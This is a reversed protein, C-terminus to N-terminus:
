RAAREREAAHGQRGHSRHKWHADIRATHKAAACAQTRARRGSAARARALTVRQLATHADVGAFGVDRKGQRRCRTLQARALACALALAPGLAPALVLAVHRQLHLVHQPQQQVRQAVPVGHHAPLGGLADAADGRAQRLHAAGARLAHSPRATPRPSSSPASRVPPTQTHKCARLLRTLSTRM